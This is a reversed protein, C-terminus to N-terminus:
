RPRSSARGQASEAGRARPGEFFPRVDAAAARSLESMSGVGQVRGHGLVAVRGAVQWLLDLDHTIMVITLGQRHHLTRVLEDVGGASIPDLGATPEDLFLIEPDMVLARALAARKLMGGSLQSPYQAGVGPELGVLALKAAAIDDIAADAQGTHERLPLGVNELVTLAGFLGGHQFLVGWRRRLALAAADSIDRLDTGLVRIRGADPRHLLIMERLLTSKGSGSGGVIAFVEGLRIELDLRAHVVQSGFRTSVDNMEVAPGTM